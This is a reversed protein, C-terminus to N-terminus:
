LGEVFQQLVLFLALMSDINVYEAEAHAGGGDAGWIIGPINKESFFRGDSSGEEFVIRANPVLERLRDLYPSTGGMFMPEEHLVSLEGSVMDQLKRFLAKTDDNETYRIDFIAEARDPVQNFSKGANIIGLNLTKCWSGEVPKGFFAKLIAYDAILHDIANDGKWPQSGHAAKGRSILKLTFIGKEKTVIKDVAGGDLAICFEPRLTEALVGAGHHGGIEEDTAILVGFTLDAQTKGMGRLRNMETKLLTLSLAVAYKDDVSGRGFLRGQRVAPEFLDDGADVVDVHAMLLVKCVPKNSDPLVLISPYGADETRSFVIGEQDLYNEVFSACAKIEDMRGHMTKFRILAETLSVMEDLIHAHHDHAPSNHNKQITM